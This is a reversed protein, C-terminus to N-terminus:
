TQVLADPDYAVHVERGRSGLSSDGFAKSAISGVSSMELSDQAQRQRIAVRMAIRAHRETPWNPERGADLAIQFSEKAYLQHMTGYRRMLEQFQAHHSPGFDRDRGHCDQLPHPPYMYLCPLWGDPIPLNASHVRRRNVLKPLLHTHPGAVPRGHPEPIASRIEMRAVRSVLVRHPSARRLTEFLADNESLLPSGCAELLRAVLLPDSTRVCFDITTLGLGLDFLRAPRDEERAAEHDPGLDSIITRRSMLAQETPLCVAVGHLWQRPRGSITEYAILRCDRPTIQLSAEAARLTLARVDCPNSDHHIEGLAGFEGMSWSTGPIALEQELLAFVDPAMHAVNM